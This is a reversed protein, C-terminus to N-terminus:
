AVGQGLGEISETLAQIRELEQFVLDFKGMRNYASSIELLIVPVHVSVPAENVAHRFQEVAQPDLGNAALAYGREMYLRQRALSATRKPVDTQRTWQEEVRVALRIYSKLHLDLVKDLTFFNMARERGDRGLSHRLEANQLLRVMGEALADPDRPSVLIGAEGVAEKVGGVDTSVIAKGSMMAEVVSYPFAESISSLVVLDGSQYAAAMNSTHGAFIVTEQLQLQERLALCEEYYSPVSVSGYIIIQADPISEKVKAASRILTLIDKLPDIRAISVVTPKARPESPTDTFVTNDVGNYIVKVNRQSVGLRTEWRTNYGCVPSVQDATYYNLSVVSQIFRILFTSLFSSYERERKGLSLYQERLYVGHETLLYPTRNRLKDIACPIGCFGSASSHTVHVKPVPTNVINLFRYLWGLSQIMGYIDPQSIRNASDGCLRLLHAKYQEWVLESKFSAKYEYVQLYDQLSLLLLGFQAPNKQPRVIEEVLKIFLPLFHKRINEDDTRKKSELIRSFPVDLHEGPEETGWLPIKIISANSSVPFKQTVFPNALISYIIFDVDPMRQVLLDCWTSVGGQHYPYTGETSLLVKIKDNAGMNM